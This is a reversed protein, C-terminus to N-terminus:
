AHLVLFWFVLLFLFLSSLYMYAINMPLIPPLIYWSPLTKNYIYFKLNLMGMGFTLYKANPVGFMLFCSEHPTEYALINLMKLLSAVICNYQSCLQWIMFQITFRNKITKYRTDYSVRVGLLIIFYNYIYM